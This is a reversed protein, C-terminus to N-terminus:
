EYGNQSIWYPVQRNTWVFLHSKEKIYYKRYAEVSDKNKYIDPMAQAFPTLGISKINPHPLSEIVDYSKHNIIKNFRFKYEINLYYSLSGLWMWNDLSERVWITCPHNEYAIKYGKDIGSKRVATSMMQASELIMKIVHKDTHYIAALKPTKDLVFINM